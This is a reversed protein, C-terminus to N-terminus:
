GGARLRPQLLPANHWNIVAFVADTIATHDPRSSVEALTELPLYAGNRPDSRIARQYHIIAEATTM